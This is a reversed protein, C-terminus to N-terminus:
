REINEVVGTVEWVGVDFGVLGVFVEILEVVLKALVVLFVLVGIWM